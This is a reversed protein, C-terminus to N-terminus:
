GAVQRRRVVAGATAALGLLVLAASGSEPVSGAARALSDAGSQALAPAAAMATAVAAASSRLALRAVTRVPM